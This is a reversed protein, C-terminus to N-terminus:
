KAGECEAIERLCMCLEFAVSNEEMARQWMENASDYDGQENYQFMCGMLENARGRHYEFRETLMAKIEEVGMM